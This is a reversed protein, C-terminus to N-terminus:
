CQNLYKKSKSKKKKKKKKYVIKTCYIQELFQIWIILNDIIEIM